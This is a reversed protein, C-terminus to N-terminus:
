AAIALFFFFTILLISTWLLASGVYGPKQRHRVLGHRFLLIGIALTPVGSLLGTRSQSIVIASIGILCHFAGLALFVANGCGTVKKVPPGDEAYHSDAAPSAYPNLEANHSSNPNDQM